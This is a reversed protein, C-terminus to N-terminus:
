SFQIWHRAFGVEEIIRECLNTRRGDGSNIISAHIGIMTRAEPRRASSHQNPHM